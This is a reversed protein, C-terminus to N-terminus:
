SLLLCSKKLTINDTYYKLDQEDMGKRRGDDSIVKELRRIQEELITTQALSKEADRFDNIADWEQKMISDIDWPKVETPRKGSVEFHKLLEGRHQSILRDITDSFSDGEARKMEQAELWDRSTIAEL